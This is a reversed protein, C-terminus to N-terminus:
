NTYRELVINIGNHNYRIQGGNGDNYYLRFGGSEIYEETVTAEFGIALQKISGYNRYTKNGVVTYGVEMINNISIRNEPLPSNPDHSIEVWEGQYAENLVGM